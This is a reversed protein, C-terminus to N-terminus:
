SVPSLDTSIRPTAAAAHAVAVTGGRLQFLRSSGVSMLAAVAIAAFLRGIRM